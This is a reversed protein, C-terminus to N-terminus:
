EKAKEPGRSAAALEAIIKEMSPWDRLSIDQHPFPIEVGAATLREFIAFRLDSRVTAGKSIDALFCQLEFILASAGFDTFLVLPRPDHLVLKHDHACALLTDRVQTPNSSYGVGVMVIVRGSNDRLYMNKVIGSILNSNPVIVSARDFTEIETARVSIRKVTGQEDGVEIWDGTRIPREALLILGSVFNNVISQLGFGIGVSLAGAVIAINALDLGAYSAALVAALILGIYSVGTLISNKLGPDMRTTPLYSNRLWSQFFRAGVIVAGFVFLGLLIGSFSITISGIQFGSLLSTATIVLSKSDLGWPAVISLAAFAMICLRILGVVVIGLQALTNRSVAFSGTIAQGVRSEATFIASAALDALGLGLTALCLIAYVWAIQQALFVAFALYGAIAAVVVLLGAIVAVPLLWTWLPRKRPNSDDAPVMTRGGRMFTRATALVMLGAIAALLADIASAFGGPTATMDAIHDVLPILALSVAAVVVLGYARTATADPVDVLRWAPRAPAFLGRTLSTIVALTAVVEVLARFTRALDDPQMGAIDLLARLGLLILLPTTVDVIAIWAASVMKRTDSPSEGAALRRASRLIVRAVVVAAIVIAAALLLLLGAPVNMQGSVRQIRDTTIRGLRVAVGPADAAVEAWLAPSLLSRDRAFLQESFRLHLRDSIAASYDTAQLSIVNAQQDLATLADLAAQQKAREDAIVKQEPDTSGERPQLSKVREEAAAIQPALGDRFANAATFIELANNRIDQLEVSGMDERKLSAAIQDLIVNWGRVQDQPSPADDAAAMSCALGLVILPVVLYAFLRRFM